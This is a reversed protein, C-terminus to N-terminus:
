TYSNNMLYFPQQAADEILGRPWSVLIPLDSAVAAGCQPFPFVEPETIAFGSGLIV